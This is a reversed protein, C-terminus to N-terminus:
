QVLAFLVIPVVLFTGAPRFSVSTANLAEEDFITSEESPIETSFVPRSSKVVSEETVGDAPVEPVESAPVPAEEVPAPEVPAPVEPAPAEEVPAPVEPASTAEPAPAEEVPAPVEPAATAEPAPVEPAATAEPAPVEPAATAEPAPVEPAATAEPAPVEPAATAEPAPVEPAPVEPAATKAPFVNGEVGALSQPAEDGNILAIPALLLTAFLFINIMQMTSEDIFTRTSLFNITLRSNNNLRSSIKNFNERDWM